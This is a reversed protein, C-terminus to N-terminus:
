ETVAMAAEFAEKEVHAPLLRVRLMDVMRVRAVRGPAEDLNIVTAGVLLSLLERALDLAELRPMRPAAAEIFRGIVAEGDRFAASRNRLAQRDGMEEALRMALLYAPLRETALEILMRLQVLPDLQPDVYTSEWTLRPGILPFTAMVRKSCFYHYLTAPKVGCAHALAKMTALSVRATARGRHVVVRQRSLEKPRGSPRRQL